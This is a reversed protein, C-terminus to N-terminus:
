QSTFEDPSGMLRDRAEIRSVTLLTVALGGFIAGFDVTPAKM